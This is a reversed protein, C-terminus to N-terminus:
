ITDIDLEEDKAKELSKDSSEVGFVVKTSKTADSIKDKKELFGKKELQHRDESTYVHHIYYSTTGEKGTTFDIPVLLVLNDKKVLVRKPGKMISGQIPAIIIDGDVTKCSFRPPYGGHTDEVEAILQGKSPEILEFRTKTRRVNKKGKQKQGPM